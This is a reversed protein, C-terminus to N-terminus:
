MHLKNFSVKRLNLSISSPFFFSFRSLDNLTNVFLSSPSWIAKQSRFQVFILPSLKALAPPTFHIFPHRCKKKACEFVLPFCRCRHRVDGAENMMSPRWGCRGGAVRPAVLRMLPSLPVNQPLAATTPPEPSSHPRKTTASM